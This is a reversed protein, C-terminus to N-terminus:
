GLVKKMTWNTFTLPGKGIKEELLVKFGHRQYFKVTWYRQTSLALVANKEKAQILEFQQQLIRGGLGKSQLAQQVVMNNLYRYPQNPGITRMLHEEISASVEMVRKFGSLGMKFPVKALGARLKALTSVHIENPKTWFGMAKVENAEAICFSEAKHELQLKLNAGLLWTMYNMRKLEDPCLYIHAPNDYFSTAVLHAATPYLKPIIPNLKFEEM